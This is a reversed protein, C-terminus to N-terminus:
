GANDYEWNYVKEECSEECRGKKSALVFIALITWSEIAKVIKKLNNSLFLNM